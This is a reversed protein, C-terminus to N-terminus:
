KEIEIEATAYLKSYTTKFDDWERKIAMDRPVFIAIVAVAAIAVIVGFGCLLKNRLKKREQFSMKQYRSNEFSDIELSDM